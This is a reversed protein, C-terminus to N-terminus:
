IILDTNSEINSLLFKFRENLQEKTKNGYPFFSKDLLLTYNNSLGKSLLTKTIEQAGVGSDIIVINM